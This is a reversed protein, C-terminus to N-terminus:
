QTRCNEYDEQVMIGVFEEVMMNSFEVECSQLWSVSYTTHLPQYMQPYIENIIDDEIACYCGFCSFIVKTNMYVAETVPSKKCLKCTIPQKQIPLSVSKYVDSMWRNLLISKWWSEIVCVKFKLDGLLKSSCARLSVSTKADIFYLIQNEVLEM